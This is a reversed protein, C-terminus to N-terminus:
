KKTELLVIGTQTVTHGLSSAATISYTHTGAGPTDSHSFAFIGGPSAITREQLVAGNRTLRVTATPSSFENFNISIQGSCTISIPAGTSTIVASPIGTAAFASVPITVAQGALKLTSVSLDQIDGTVVVLKNASARDINANIISAAALAANAATISNAAMHGAQVQGAAIAAATVANAAITSATVTNAGPVANTVQGTTASAPGLYASPYNQANVTRIWYYYTVGSAGVNDAYIGVPGRVSGIMSATGVNNTGNRWVEVRDTTSDAPNTWQLINCNQSSTVTLGSVQPPPLQAMVGTITYPYATVGALQEKGGGWRNYSLFKFYLTKGVMALDLADSYAIADDVRIFKAAAGHAAASTSYAGRVPLTLDYTNASILASTTYAVFENDILSLTSLNNADATSGALIQGGNGVLQARAVQNVAATIASAITGYRAGGDVRGMYAYSTGDNSAWVECGGWDASNGTVAVGIALGSMAHVAPVEFFAPAVVSGPAVSYNAVYGTGATASYLPSHLVGPPADEAQISLEGTEDEEVSLIRVPTANLGLRTDTLTVYDTPELRCYKWGLKFEYVNRTYLVRQLILQAILRATTADTVAHATVIQMPKLGYLEISAQDQATAISTNYQSASDLYEIQVQNYADANPTRMVRVPQELDLFDDDGLAYAPTVNPTYTISNATVSTDGFPTIKLLGESFYIGSNTLTMLDTIAQRAEGQTDYVPSLFVNSAICWTSFNTWDGLYAPPFGAGHNPDTLYDTIVDKPNAGDITGANYPLIGTVDFSHNGLSASNGLDYSAASVYALGRYALAKTPHKSTWTAWATQASTGLFRNFKTATGTYEKDKWFANVSAIPGECLGLLFSTTYTYSTNTIDPAGGKGGGGSSSTHAVATFDDYDILNGPLRNRGYVLPLCGGYASSQINLGALPTESNNISGSGGFLGGM